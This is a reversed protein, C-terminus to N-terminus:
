RATALRGVRVRPSSKAKPKAKSRSGMSARGLGAVPASIPEIKLPAVTPVGAQKETKWLMFPILGVLLGMASYAGIQQLSMDKLIPGRDKPEEYMVLIAESLGQVAALTTATKADINKNRLKIILGNVVGTAVSIPFPHELLYGTDIKM